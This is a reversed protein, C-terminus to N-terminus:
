LIYKQILHARALHLISNVVTIIIIFQLSTRLFFTTFYTSVDLKLAVQCFPGYMSFCVSGCLFVYFVLVCCGNLIKKTLNDLFTVQLIVKTHSRYILSMTVHVNLRGFM